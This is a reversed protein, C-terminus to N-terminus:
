LARKVGAYRYLLNIIRRLTARFEKEEEETHEVDQDIVEFGEANDYHAELDAACLHWAFRRIEAKNMSKGKM